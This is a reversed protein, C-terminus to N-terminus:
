SANVEQKIQSRCIEGYVPSTKLLEEHTGRASLQGDDLVLIKDANKVSAVRQAVILKTTGELERNFSAQLAAETKLDLASAADDLILIEPRKLMARAISIRQKQGGSLSHGSETVHTQYGNPTNQIFDEAQALRAARRIKEPDANPTGWTINEEISRSFLESKQQVIGIKDRLVEMPYDRVNIGDVLVEGGTTDYFRPILHVLSSKGSGTSGIVAVTQGPEIRFSVNKLVPNDPADPYSFSVNRFEIEGQHGKKPSCTGSKQAPKTELVERIRKWSASSRTFTQFINAMFIIRMLIMSLYTISAMVQGPTINGDTQITIGGIYLVVVTCINLVINVCPNLFALATQARLNVFCLQDNAKSFLALAQAEKVYAKVVRAGAINEQVICNIQDLKQQIITFLPSVKRLFFIVFAAIVPLGCAAVLAFRPSQLYLMYIGGFFMVTCRVVSRVSMMVMQEVRSVDNTIRTILSGTTFQDTQQFSFNMIRSFLDKRVDNGFNQAAISAFVGCLIGCTGGFIVLLLMWIGMEWILDINGGLVGKDVIIAMMAPQWMDMAIEGLMFLPALLCYLRYKKLYRLM